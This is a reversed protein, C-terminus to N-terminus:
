GTGHMVRDSSVVVDMRIDRGMLDGRQGVVTPVHDVIQRDFCVGVLLPKRYPGNNGTQGHLAQESRIGCAHQASRERQLAGLFRDYFGGGRGLRNCDTDFALGPVLVVDISEPDIVRAVSLPEPVGFRRIETKADSFPESRTAIVASQMTSTDWEIRPACVTGGREAHEAIFRGLDLEPEDAKRLYVLVTADPKILLTERYALTLLQECVLRSERDIEDASLVALDRQISM